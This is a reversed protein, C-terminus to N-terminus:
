DNPVVLEVLQNLLLHGNITPYFLNDECVGWEWTVAQQVGELNLLDLPFGKNFLRLGMIIKEARREAVTLTECIPEEKLWKKVSRPNQTALLGIRGHSAPGLGLYDGGLWYTLNHKCQHKSDAYNSIEYAPKGRKAMIENTKIYLEIAADEDPISINQRGFPTNEEITLQYLSYHHLNLDLARNLEEEWASVNQNPRAYILDMNVNDFISKAEIIRSLATELTHRRGLRKLDSDNLAQVGISLRNVGNKRFFLMKQSDVADPNAELSIEIDPSFVFEKRLFKMLDEFFDIESM